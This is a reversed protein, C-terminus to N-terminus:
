QAEVNDLLWNMEDAFNATFNVTEGEAVVLNGANDYIPGTFVDWEGSLIKATAADILEQAGEPAASTLPALSVLGEKLGYFLNQATWSGAMVAKVEDIVIASWDWVPATMWANYGAEDPNIIANYGVGYAGRAEAAIMPMTTDCHQALVDCGLDLLAEATQRELTVDYWSNTYKVIIRADPNVSKVGLAFANLGGNVEPNNMSGVYGILNKETKLGAVIGSLYRAQYIAGFYNNFNTENCMYGSCHSFIVNPNEEAAECFYEQYGFSNGFIIQCGMEILENIADECSSDESVNELWFVQDDRLGLAEKMALTGQHHAYTYGKDEAGGIYIFGVKLDDQAVPEFALASVTSLALMLALVIAALKKM